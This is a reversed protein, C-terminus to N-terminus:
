SVAATIGVVDHQPSLVTLSVYVRLLSQAHYGTWYLIGSVILICVFEM